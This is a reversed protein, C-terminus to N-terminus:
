VSITVIEITQPPLIVCLVPDLIESVLPQLRFQKLLCSSVCFQIWNNLCRHNTVIEAPGYTTEKGFARFAILTSKETVGIDFSACLCSVNSQSSCSSLLPKCKGLM